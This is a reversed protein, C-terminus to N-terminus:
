ALKPAQPQVFVTAMGAAKAGEIGLQGDEFVLCDSPEVGLQEAALLFSDPAPKSNAVDDKSVIVPFFGNGLGIAELTSMVHSRGSGSAVAVAAGAAKRERAIQVIPEIPLIVQEKTTFHHSVRAVVPDPAMQLNHERNLRVITDHHGMGAMSYFLEWTFDLTPAAELLAARWAAYYLPMTDALTGDLDFIYAKFSRDPLALMGLCQCGHPLNDLEPKSAAKASEPRLFPGKGAEPM